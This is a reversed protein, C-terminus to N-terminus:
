RCYTHIGLRKILAKVVAGQAEVINKGTIVVVLLNEELFSTDGWSPCATLATKGIDGELAVALEDNLIVLRTLRKIHM